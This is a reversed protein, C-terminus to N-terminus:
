QKEEDRQGTVEDAPISSSKQRDEKPSTRYSTLGLENEFVRYEADTWEAEVNSSQLTEHRLEHTRQDTLGPSASQATHNPPELKV